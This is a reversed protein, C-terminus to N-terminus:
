AQLVLKRRYFINLICWPLSGELFLHPWISFIHSNSFFLARIELEIFEYACFQILFLLDLGLICLVYVRYKTRNCQGCTTEIHHISELARQCGNGYLSLSLCLQSIEVLFLKSLESSVALYVQCRSQFFWALTLLWRVHGRFLRILKKFKLRSKWAPEQSGLFCLSGIEM